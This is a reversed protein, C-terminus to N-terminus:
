HRRRGDIPRWHSGLVLTRRVGSGEGADHGPGAHYRSNRAGAAVAGCTPTTHTPILQSAPTPSQRLEVGAKRAMVNIAAGGALFNRVMQATVAQPYGTVGQAVVGHDAAAVIM